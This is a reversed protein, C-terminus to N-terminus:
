NAAAEHFSSRADLERGTRNLRIGEANIMRKGDRAYWGQVTVEHGANVMHPKWGHKTLATPSGLEVRWREIKGNDARGEVTLYAHPNTWDIKTVKGELHAPKSADYEAAFPHHAWASGGILLAGAAIASTVFTRM